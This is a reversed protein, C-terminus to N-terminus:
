FTECTANRLIKKEPVTNLYFTQKRPIECFLFPYFIATKQCKLGEYPYNLDFISTIRLRFQCIVYGGIVYETYQNYFRAGISSLLRM